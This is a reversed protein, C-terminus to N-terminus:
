DFYTPTGSFQLALWRELDELYVALDEEVRTGTQGRMWGMFAESYRTPIDDVRIVRMPSEPLKGTLDGEEDREDWAHLCGDGANTVQRVKDQPM